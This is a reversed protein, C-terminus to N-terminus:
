TSCSLGGRTDIRRASDRERRRERGRPARDGLVDDWEENPMRSAVISRRCGRCAHRYRARGLRLPQGDGRDARRARREADVGRQVARRRSRARTTLAAVEDFDNMLDLWDWRHITCASSSSPRRAARPECDDYQLNVWTVGPDRLDRGVRRPAHVRTPTGRDPDEVRWSIGVYPGPGIEALRERWAAVREPDARPVVRRDPFADLRRASGASLSGAPIARDFDHMTERRTEDHTQARVEADPFSRAFLPVLRTDCEIVVERARPSRPRSVAVRAHDRRRRGAGPLRARARRHRGTDLAPGRRRTRHRAPRGPDRAGVTRVGRRAPRRHAARVRSLRPLRQERARRAIAHTSTHSRSTSGASSCSCSASTATRPRRQRGVLALAHTSWTSRRTSIASCASTTASCPGSRTTTPAASSSRAGCRSRRATCGASTTSCRASCATTRDSARARADGRAADRGRGRRLARPGEPDPRPQAVVAVRAARDRRARAADGRRRAAAGRPAARQRLQQLLRVSSGDTARRAPAAAEFLDIPPTSRTATPSSRASCSRPAARRAPARRPRPPVDARGRGSRGHAAHARATALLLDIPVSAPRTEHREEAQREVGRRGFRGDVRLRGIPRGHPGPQSRPGSPRTVASEPRPQRLPGRPRAAPMRPLRRLEAGSAPGARRALRQECSRAATRRLERARDSSTPPCRSRRGAAGAFPAVTPRPAAISPPTAAADLRAECEDLSTRGVVPTVGGGGAGRDPRHRRSRAVRRAAPRRARPVGRCPAADKDVNAGVLEFLLFM